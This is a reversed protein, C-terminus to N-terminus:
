TKLIKTKIFGFILEKVWAKKTKDGSKPFYTMLKRNSQFLWSKAVIASWIRQDEEGTLLGFHYDCDPLRTMIISFTEQQQSPLTPDKNFPVLFFVLNCHIAEQFTVQRRSQCNNLIYLIIRIKIFDDSFILEQLKSTM